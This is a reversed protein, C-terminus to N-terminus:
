GPGDTSRAAFVTRRGAAPELARLEAPQAEQPRRQDGAAHREAGPEDEWIFLHFGGWERSSRRQHTLLHRPQRQDDNPIPGADRRGAYARAFGPESGCFKLCDRESTSGEMMCLTAAVAGSAEHM